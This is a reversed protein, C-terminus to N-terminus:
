ELSCFSVLHLGLQLRPPLTLLPDTSQAVASSPFYSNRLCHSSM